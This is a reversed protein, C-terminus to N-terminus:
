KIKCFRCSPISFTFGGVIIVITGLCAIGLATIYGYYDGSAVVTNVITTILIQIVVIFMIIDTFQSRGKYKFFRHDISLRNAKASLSVLLINSIVGISAILLVYLSTNNGKEKSFLLDPWSGDGSASVFL